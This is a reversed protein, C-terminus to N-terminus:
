KWFDYFNFWQDPYARAVRELVASYADALAQVKEEKKAAEPARLEEVIARFVRTSEKVVFVAFATAGRRVALTFPGAPFAAEEGLFRCKVTKPSGLVRDAPMSVIEKAELAANLVFIHSLDEQVPVMEINCDGFLRMRNQMVTVAEGSYVLTKMPKPSRLMYGSIEYNGMHSALVLFPTDEPKLANYLTMHDGTMTFKRGAYVAFRDMVVKGMNYMNLFVHWASKGKGWGLHRFFRYSGKRAQGDSLLYFPLAPVIFGYM